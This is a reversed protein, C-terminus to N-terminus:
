TPSHTVTNQVRLTDQAGPRRRLYVRLGLTQGVEMTELCVVSRVSAREHRSSLIPFYRVAGLLCPDLVEDTRPPSKHLYPMM